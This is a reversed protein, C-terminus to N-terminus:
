FQFFSRCYYSENPFSALCFGGEAMEYVYRRQSSHAGPLKPKCFSWPNCISYIHYSPLLSVKWFVRSCNSQDIGIDESYRRGESVNRFHFGSRGIVALDTHNGYNWTWFYMIFIVTLFFFNLSTKMGMVIERGRQGRSM